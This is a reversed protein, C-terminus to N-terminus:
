ALDLSRAAREGKKRPLDEGYNEGEVNRSSISAKEMVKEMIMKKIEDFSEELQFIAKIKQLGADSELELLEVHTSTEGASLIFQGKYSYDDETINLSSLLLDRTKM